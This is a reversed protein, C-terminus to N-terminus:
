IFVPITWFIRGGNLRVVSLWLSLDLDLEPAEWDDNSVDKDDKSVDKDNDSVDTVDQQEQPDQESM